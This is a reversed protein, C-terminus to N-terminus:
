PYKKATRLAYLTNSLKSKVHKLHENWNLQNDIQLGLFKTHTVEKIIDDGLKIYLGADIPNRGLKNFIMYVTKTVNLSLKNAKFWDALTTLETNITNYLVPLSKGSAYITTDDAFLICKTKTLCHPLDNTYIIFLLPGLVSGQPVGTTTLSTTSSINKYM